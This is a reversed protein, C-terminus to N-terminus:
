CFGRFFHMKISRQTVTVHITPRQGPSPISRFRARYDPYHCPAYYKILHGSAFRPTPMHRDGWDKTAIGPPDPRAPISIYLQPDITPARQQESESAHKHKRHQQGGPGRRHPSTRGTPIPRNRPSNQRRDPRRDRHQQLATPRQGAGRLRPPVLDAATTVAGSRRQDRHRDRSPHTPGPPPSQITRRPHNIVASPSAPTPRPPRRPTSAHRRHPAPGKRGTTRRALRTQGPSERRHSSRILM